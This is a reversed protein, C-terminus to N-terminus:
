FLLVDLDVEVLCFEELYVDEGVSEKEGWCSKVCMFVMVIGFEIVVDNM